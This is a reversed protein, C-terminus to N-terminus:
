YLAFIMMLSSIGSQLSRSIDALVVAILTYTLYLLSSFHRSFSINWLSFYKGIGNVTTNNYSLEDVADHKVPLLSTAIVLDVFSPRGEKDKELLLKEKEDRDRM